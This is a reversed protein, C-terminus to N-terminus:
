RYSTGNVWYYTVLRILRDGESGSTFPAKGATWLNNAAIMEDDSIKGDGNTDVAALVALDGTAVPPNGGTAPPPTTGTAPPPNTVTASPPTNSSSSPFISNWNTILLYVGGGVIVATIIGGMGRAM